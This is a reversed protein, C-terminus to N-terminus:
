ESRRASVRGSSASAVSASAVPSCSTVTTTAKVTTEVVMGEKAEQDSKKTRKEDERRLTRELLDNEGGQAMKLKSEGKM